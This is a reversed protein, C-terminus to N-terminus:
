HRGDTSGVLESQNREGTWCLLSGEPEDGERAEKANLLQSGNEHFQWDVLAGATVLKGGGGWGQGMSLTEVEQCQMPPDWHPASARWARRTGWEGAGVGERSGM